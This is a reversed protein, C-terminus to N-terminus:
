WFLTKAIVAYVENANNASKAKANELEEARGEVTAASWILWVKLMVTLTSVEIAPM